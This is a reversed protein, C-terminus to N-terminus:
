EPALSRIRSPTIRITVWEGEIRAWSALTEAARAEDYYRAALRRALEWGGTEDVTAVGEITVWAEPAGVGDEVSLAVRPDRRIRRVKASTRTTFLRAIAGDWEYWVPIVNPSGDENLTALKAIRTEQLFADRQADAMAAM